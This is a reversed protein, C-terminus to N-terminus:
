QETPTNQWRWKFRTEAVKAAKAQLDPDGAALKAGNMDSFVYTGTLFLTRTGIPCVYPGARAGDLRAWGTGLVTARCWVDSRALRARHLQLRIQVQLSVNTRTRALVDGLPISTTVAGAVTSTAPSSQAVAATAVTALLLAAVATEAYRSAM